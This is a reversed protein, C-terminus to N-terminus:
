FSMVQNLPPAEGADPIAVTSVPLNVEPIQFAPADPQLVQVPASATTDVAPQANAPIAAPQAPVSIKQAGSQAPLATTAPGGSLAKGYFAASTNPHLYMQGWVETISEMIEASRQIVDPTNILGAWDFPQAAKSYELVQFTQNSENKKHASATLTTKFFYPNVRPLGPKAAQFEPKKALAKSLVSIQDFWGATEMYSSGGASFVATHDLAPIYILAGLFSKCAGEKDNGAAMWNKKHYPCTKCDTGSWGVAHFGDQNTGCLLKGKQGDIDGYLRKYRVNALIVVELRPFVCWEGNDTKKHTGQAIIEDPLGEVSLGIGGLCHVTQNFNSDGLLSPDGQILRARNISDKEDDQIYALQDQNVFGALSALLNDIM